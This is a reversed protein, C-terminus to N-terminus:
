FCEVAGSIYCAPGKMIMRLPCCFLENSDDARCSNAFCSAEVVHLLSAFILFYAKRDSYTIGIIAKSIPKHMLEIVLVSESYSTLM